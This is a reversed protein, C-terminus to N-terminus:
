SAVAQGSLAPKEPTASAAKYAAIVAQEIVERQDNNVPFAVPYRHRDRETRVQMGCAGCYLHLSAGRVRCRPCAEFRPVDPMAVWLTGDPRELLRCGRVAFTGGLEIHAVVLLKYRHRPNDSKLPFVLRVDTVPIM